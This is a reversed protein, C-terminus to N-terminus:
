AGAVERMVIASYPKVLAASLRTEMLYKMQNFDIDFDDYSNIEGGKNTGINYDNLNVTIANVTADATGDANQARNFIEDPVPVMEKVSLATAIEAPSKYMYHGQTDKLLRIKTLMSQRIFMTPNGSGRYQDMATISQDIFDAADGTKFTAKIAYLPDDTAIPRLHAPLIKDDAATARGDGILYAGALEENLMVRMEGRMWSVVDFDTIDVVDDHDLKQKKYVTQPDTTRKLLTFVENLKEKSKVYGKARAEDATIDAFMTKVRAFLTNNVGGMVKAVWEQQRQIFEPSTTYNKYDPFLMDISDIGYTAALPSANHALADDDNLHAKFSESLSGYRKADKAVAAAREKLAEGHSLAETDENDFVNYQMDDDEMDDSQSMDEEGADPSGGEAAKGVLFYLVNKQEESMGDIVDQITAEKPATGAMKDEKGDAHELESEKNEEPKVEPEKPAEKQTDDSHELELGEEPNYIVAEDIDESEWDESHAFSRQDIYAGPNAGALVLSVERIMGHMVNRNSDQQLQNAYISLATIDGNRVSERGRKGEPSNNFKGYAYVGEPRNELLAHGLVNDITEHNHQYVLPVITGNQDKFADAKITRGDSCRLDNRTAWGGFDYNEKKM